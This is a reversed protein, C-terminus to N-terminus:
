AEKALKGQEAVRDKLRVNEAIVESMKQSQSAIFEADQSDM